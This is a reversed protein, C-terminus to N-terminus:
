GRCLKNLRPQLIWIGVPSLSILFFELAYDNFTALRGLEVSKMTKAAVRLSLFICVTSILHLTIVIPFLTLGIGIGQGNEGIYFQKDLVFVLSVIYIMPVLLLIKLQGLKIDIGNPLKEHLVIAISVAWGVMVMTFLAIIGPLFKILMVPHSFIYVSIAVPLVWTFIFLQWHKLHLFFRM